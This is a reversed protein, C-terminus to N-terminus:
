ELIHSDFKNRQVEEKDEAKMELKAAAEIEEQEKKVKELQASALDIHRQLRTVVEEKKRARTTSSM